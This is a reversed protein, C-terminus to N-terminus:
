AKSNSAILFLTNEDVKDNTGLRKVGYGKALLVKGDKVISIGIGPVNFTKLVKAIYADLDPPLSSKQQGYLHSSVGCYLIFLTILMHKRIVMVTYSIKKLLDCHHVGAQM